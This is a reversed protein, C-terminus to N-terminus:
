VSESEKIESNLVTNADCGEGNKDQLLGNSKEISPEKYPIFEDSWYIKINTNRPIYPNNITADKHKLITSKSSVGYLNVLDVTTRFYTLVGDKEGILYKYPNHYCNEHNQSQYTLVYKSVENMLEIKSDIKNFRVIFENKFLRHEVINSRVSSKMGLYESAENVSVCEKVLEWNRISYIYCHISDLKGSVYCQKISNSIKEKTEKTHDLIAETNVGRLNYEPKIIDVYYTERNLRINEECYELIGYEFNDEGYKNWANQLYNNTHKNKNLEWKHDYLRKYLNKASGIYRHGNIINTIIYIGCKEILNKNFERM